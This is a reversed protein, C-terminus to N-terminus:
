KIKGTADASLLIEITANQSTDAIRIHLCGNRISTFENLISDDRSNELFTKVEALENPVYFEIHWPSYVKNVDMVTFRDDEYCSGVLYPKFALGPVKAKLISAHQGDKLQIKCLAEESATSNLELKLIDHTGVMYFITEGFDYTIGFDRIITTYNSAILEYRYKWMMHDCLPEASFDVFERGKRLYNNCNIKFSMDHEFFLFTTKAKRQKLYLKNDEILIWEPLKNCYKYRAIEFM